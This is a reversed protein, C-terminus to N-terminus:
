CLEMLEEEWVAIQGTSPEQLSLINEIEKIEDINKRIEQLVLERNLNNEEKLMGLGLEVAYKKGKLLHLLDREEQSSFRDKIDVPPTMAEIEM